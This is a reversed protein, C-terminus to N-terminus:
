NGKEKPWPKAEPYMSLKPYHFNLDIGSMNSASWAFLNTNTALVQAVLEEVEKSIQCGLKTCPSSDKSLQFPKVEERLKAERPDLEAEVLSKQSLHM